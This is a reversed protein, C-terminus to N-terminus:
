QIERLTLIAKKYLQNIRTQSLKLKLALYDETHNFVFKGRLIFKELSPLTSILSEFHNEDSKIVSESIEKTPNSDLSFSIPLFYMKEKSKTRPLRITKQSRLEQYIGGIIYKAALSSFAFEKEKDYKSVAQHLAMYGVQLLDEKLYNEFCLRNVLMKVLNLNELFLDEPL